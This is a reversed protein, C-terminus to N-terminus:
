GTNHLLSCFSAPSPAEYAQSQEMVSHVELGPRQEDSCRGRFSAVTKGM